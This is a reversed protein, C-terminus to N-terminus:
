AAPPAAVTGNPTSSGAANQPSPVVNPDVPSSNGQIAAIMGPTAMKDLPLYDSKFNVDVAGTLQIKTQLAADNSQAATTSATIVPKNEYKHSGKAFYEASYDETNYKGSRESGRDYQRDGSQVQAVNGYRDRAVDMATASRRMSQRDNARVEYMIKASLKGDTVVIRNIGMLVMSAMLQQRQRALQIRSQEILAKEANADSLDLSKMEGDEFQLKNNVQRLADSEDVGERLQLRPGPEDDFDDFGIEFVDPFQDVMNDRGQNESVNDDMFQKLSKAVSSIMEQYAEMQEISSKTISTFVGNILESVFTPFKIEDLLEGAVRAGERAASAEFGEDGIADVAARREAFSAEDAPTGALAEAQTREAAEKHGVSGPIKQGEIGEPRALYDAILATNKAIDTKQEPSLQNFAESQSLLKAVSQRVEPAPTPPTRLAESKQDNIATM